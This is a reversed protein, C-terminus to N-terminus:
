LKLQYCLISLLFSFTGLLFSIFKSKLNKKTNIIIYFSTFIGIPLIFFNDITIYIHCLLWLFILKYKCFREKDKIESLSIYLLPITLISIFLPM